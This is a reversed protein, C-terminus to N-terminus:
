RVMAAGTGHTVAGSRQLAWTVSQYSPTAGVQVKPSLLVIVRASEAVRHGAEMIETGGLTKLGDGEVRQPSRLRIDGPPNATSATDHAGIVEPPSGSTASPTCSQHCM